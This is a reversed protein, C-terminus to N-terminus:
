REGYIEPNVLFARDPTKGELIMLANQAAEIGMRNFSEETAAAVHPTLVVKGAKAFRSLDDPPEKSFTDIGAAAIRGEQL